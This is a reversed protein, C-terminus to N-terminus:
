LETKIRNYERTGEEGAALIDDAQMADNLQRQLVDLTITVGQTLTQSREFGIDGCSERLVNYYKCVIFKFNVWWSIRQCSEACRERCACTDRGSSLDSFLM